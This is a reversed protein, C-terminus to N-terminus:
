CGNENVRTKCVFDSWPVNVCVEKEPTGWESLLVNSEQQLIMHDSILHPLRM